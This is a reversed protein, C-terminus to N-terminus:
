ECGAESVDLLGGVINRGVQRIWPESRALARDAVWRVDDYFGFHSLVVAFTWYHARGLGCSRALRDRIYTAVVQHIDSHDLHGLLERVRVHCSSSCLRSMLSPAKRLCTQILPIDCSVARGRGSGEGNWYGHREASSPRPGDKWSRCLRRWPRGLGWSVGTRMGRTRPRWRRGVCDALM